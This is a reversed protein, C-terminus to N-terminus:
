SNEDSNENFTRQASKEDSNEIFTYEPGDPFDFQRLGEKRHLTLRSVELEIICFEESYENRDKSYFIIKAEGKLTKNLVKTVAPHTEIVPSSENERDAQELENFLHAEGIKSDDWNVKELEFDIRQPIIINPPLSPQPQSLVKTSKEDM